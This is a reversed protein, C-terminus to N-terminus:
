RAEPVKNGKEHLILMFHRRFTERAEEPEQFPEQLHVLDGQSRWSATEQVNFMRSGQGEKRHLARGEKRRTDNEEGEQQINVEFVAKAYIEGISV